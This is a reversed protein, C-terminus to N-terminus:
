INDNKNFVTTKQPENTTNLNSAFVGNINCASLVIAMSLVKLIKIFKKM